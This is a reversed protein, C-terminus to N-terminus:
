SSSSSSDPKPHENLNLRIVPDYEPGNWKNGPFYKFIFIRLAGVGVGLFTMIVLSVGILAFTSLIVWIYNHDPERNSVNIFTVANQQSQAWALLYLLRSM